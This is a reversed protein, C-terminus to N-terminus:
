GAIRAVFTSRRLLAGRPGHESVDFTASWNTASIGSTTSIRVAAAGAVRYAEVYGPRRVAVYATGRGPEFWAFALPAGAESVCALDLRPDHLRGHELRGYARGCWEARGGDCAVLARGAATPFTVSMGSAGIRLVLRGSPAHDRAAALCRGAATGAPQRRPEVVSVKTLIQPTPADLPVSPPTARSGDVLEAPPHREGSCAGIGAVLAVLFWAVMGTGASTV